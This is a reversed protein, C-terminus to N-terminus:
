ASRSIQWRKWHRFLNTAYIEKLIYKLRVVAMAEFIQYFMFCYGALGRWFGVKEMKRMFNFNKLLMSGYKLGRSRCFYNMGIEIKYGRAFERPVSLFYRRRIARVGSILPLHQSIKGIIKGRDCIGVNMVLEGKSVPKLVKLINERGLWYLDADAFFLIDARTKRAGYFMAGGKGRRNKLKLVSAGASKANEATKDSSGDSVVIIDSFVSAGKLDKVVGAITKEENYAPIIATIRM